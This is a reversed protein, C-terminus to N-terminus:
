KRRKPTLTALARRLLVKAAVVKKHTAIKHTASKKHAKKHTHKAWYERLAKPQRAM